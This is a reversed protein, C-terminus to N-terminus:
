PNKKMPQTMIHSLSVFIKDLSNDFNSYSTTRSQLYSPVDYEDCYNKSFNLLNSRIAMPDDWNEFLSNMVEIGFHCLTNFLEPYKDIPIKVNSSSVAVLLTNLATTVEALNRSQISMSLAHMNVVGLEPEFMFVPKSQNIKEGISAIQTIDYGCTLEVPVKMPTYNRVLTRKYIKPLRAMLKERIKPDLSATTLPVAPTAATDPVKTTQQKLKEQMELEKKTPRKKQRPKKTKKVAAKKTTAALGKGKASKELSSAPLNSPPSTAAIVNPSEVPLAPGVSGM